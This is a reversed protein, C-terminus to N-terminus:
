PSSAITPELPQDTVATKRADQEMGLIQWARGMM